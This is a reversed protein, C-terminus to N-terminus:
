IMDGRIQFYHLTHLKCKKFQDSYKLHSLKPLIKTARKQIKELTEIDAKSYPNWACNCYDLHSRVLNKYVLVFSSISLYKFNRKILRVMKYAMNIVGLDRAVDERNISTGKEHHLMTNTCEKSIDREFSVV